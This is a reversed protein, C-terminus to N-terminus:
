LNEEGDTVIFIRAAILSYEFLRKIRFISAIHEEPVDTRVIAV